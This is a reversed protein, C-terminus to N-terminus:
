RIREANKRCLKNKPQVQNFVRKLGNHDVKKMMFVLNSFERPTEPRLDDATSDCMQRVFNLVQKANLDGSSEGQAHQFTLDQPDGM